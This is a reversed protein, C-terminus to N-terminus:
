GASSVAGIRSKLYRRGAATKFYVERNRAEAFTSFKEFYVVRVKKKRKTTRTKGERHEMLRRELNNTCGKYLRSNEDALVYAYFEEM